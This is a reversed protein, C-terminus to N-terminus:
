EVGYWQPSPCGLAGSALNTTPASLLHNHQRLAIAKERVGACGSISCSYPIRKNAQWSRAVQGYHIPVVRDMMGLKRTSLEPREFSLLLM